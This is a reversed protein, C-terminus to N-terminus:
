NGMWSKIELVLEKITGICVRILFVPLWLLVWMHPKDKSHTAIIDGIVLYIVSIYILIWVQYDTM